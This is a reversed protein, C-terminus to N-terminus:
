MYEGCYPCREVSDDIYEGCYPCSIERKSSINLLKLLIKM